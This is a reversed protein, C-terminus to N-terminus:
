DGKGASGDPIATVPMGPGVKLHGGTIITEGPKLGDVLDVMGKKRMGLTVPVPAVKGEVVKFVLQGKAQPILAAEPIM